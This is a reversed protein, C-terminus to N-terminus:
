SEVEADINVLKLLCHEIPTLTSQWIRWEVNQVAASPKSEIFEDWARPIPWEVAYQVERASLM